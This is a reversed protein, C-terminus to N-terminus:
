SYGGPQFGIVRRNAVTFEAEIWSPDLIPSNNTAARAIIRVIQRRASRPNRGIASLVEEPINQPVKEGVGYQSVVERYLNPIIVEHMEEHTPEQVEIVHFRSLVPDPIREKNNATAIWIVKSADVPWDLAEDVFASSTSPELIGLISESVHRGRTSASHGAKDLEDLVIVPNATGLLLTELIAGHKGAAYELSSGTLIFGDSTSGMSIIKSPVNLLTALELAVASKGIGPPGALLIPPSQFIGNGSWRSLASLDVIWEVLGRCHPFRDGWERIRDLSPSPALDLVRGALVREVLPIWKQDFKNDAYGGGLEARNKLKKELGSPDKLFGLSKRYNPSHGVVVSTQTSISKRTLKM